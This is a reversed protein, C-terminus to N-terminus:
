ISQGPTYLIQVAFCLICFVLQLISLVLYLIHFAPTGTLALALKRAPAVPYATDGPAMLYWISFLHYWINAM